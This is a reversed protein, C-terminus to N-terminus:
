DDLEEVARKIEACATAEEGGLRPCAIDLLRQADAARGAELRLVAHAVLLAPVVHEPEPGLDQLWADARALARMEVACLYAVMLSATRLNAPEAWSAGAAHELCGEYDGSAALRKMRAYQYVWTVPMDERITNKVPGDRLTDLTAKPLGSPLGDLIDIALQELEGTGLGTSHSIVAVFHEETVVWIEEYDPRVVVRLADLADRTRRVRAPRKVRASAIDEALPWFTGPSSTMGAKYDRVQVRRSELWSLAGNPDSHLYAIAQVQGDGNTGMIAQGAIASPFSGLSQADFMRQRIPHLAYPPPSTAQLFEWGLWPAARGLPVGVLEPRDWGEARLPEGAAVLEQLPPPERHAWWVAEWGDRRELDALWAAGHLPGAVEGGVMGGAYMSLGRLMDYFRTVDAGHLAQCVRAGVLEAHGERIALLSRGSTEDFPPQAHQFQLAHTLEHALLCDLAPGAMSPDAGVTPGFYAGWVDTLVFVTDDQPVYLALSFDIPEYSQEVTTRATARDVLRIEPMDLFRRGNAEEVLPRLARVRETLAAQDLEELGDNARATAAAFLAVIILAGSMMASRAQLACM